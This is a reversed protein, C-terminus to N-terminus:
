TLRHSFDIFLGRSLVVRQKAREDVSTPEQMTMTDLKGKPKLTV